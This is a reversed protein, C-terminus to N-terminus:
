DEANEDMLRELIKNAGFDCGSQQWATLIDRAIQKRREPGLKLRFCIMEMLSAQNLAGHYIYHPSVRPSGCSFTNVRHWAKIDAVDVVEGQLALSLPTDEIRESVKVYYFMRSYRAQGTKINIDQDECNIPSWPSFLPVVFPALLLGVAIVVLITWIRKM